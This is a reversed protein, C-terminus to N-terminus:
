IATHFNWFAQMEETSQSVRCVTTGSTLASRGPLKPRVALKGATTGVPIDLLKNLLMIAPIEQYNINIMIPSVNEMLQIFLNHELTISVESSMM